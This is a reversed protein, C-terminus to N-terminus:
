KKKKDKPAPKKVAPAVDPAPTTPMDKGPDPERTFDLPLHPAFPEPQPTITQM